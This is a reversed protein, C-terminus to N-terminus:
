RVDQKLLLTLVPDEVDKEYTTPALLAKTVEDIV